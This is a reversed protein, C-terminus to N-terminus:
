GRSGGVLDTTSGIPKTVMPGRTDQRLGPGVPDGREACSEHRTDEAPASDAWRDRTRSMALRYVASSGSTPLGLTIVAAASTRQVTGCSGAGPGSTRSSGAVSRSRPTRARRRSPSDRRPCWACRRWPRPPAHRRRAPGGSRGRARRRASSEASHACPRCRVGRRGADM